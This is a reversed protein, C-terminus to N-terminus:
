EELLNYSWAITDRLTQQRAPLDRTGGVLLRLRHELRALLAPPPFLKTRAAALEIALPLGDLRRCIEAVAPADEATLAFDPRVSTARQVFVEVAAYRSLAEVPLQQAPDPVSLPPVPFEQEGRVHLAARSTVLLKLRPAATLLDVLRPAAAVIQEFNDLVLL